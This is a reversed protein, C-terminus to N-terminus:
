IRGSLDGGPNIPKIGTSGAASINIITIYGNSDYGSSNDTPISVNYYSATVSSISSVGTVQIQHTSKSNSAQVTSLLSKVQVAPINNGIYQTFQSNFTSVAMTDSVAGVQDEVGKTSRLIIIGTSILLIAILIAGAMLLAKTANEM